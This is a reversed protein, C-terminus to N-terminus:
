VLGWGIAALRVLTHVYVGLVLVPLTAAAIAVLWAGVATRFRRMGIM